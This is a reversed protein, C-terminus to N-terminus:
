RLIFGLPSPIGPFTVTGGEGVGPPLNNEELAPPFDAATDRPTERRVTPLLSASVDSQQTWACM